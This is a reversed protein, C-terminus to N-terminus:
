RSLPLTQGGLIERGARVKVTTLDSSAPTKWLKALEAADAATYGNNTYAQLAVDEGATQPTQGPRLPLARGHLLEGGACIKADATITGHGWLHSLLLADEYTYGAKFFANWEPTVGFDDPISTVACRPPGSYWSPSSAAGTPTPSGSPTGTWAGPAVTSPRSGNLPLFGATEPGALLGGAALVTLASSGIAVRARRRRVQRRGAVVFDDVTHRWPPPNGQARELADRLDDRV